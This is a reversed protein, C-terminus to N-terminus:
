QDGRTSAPLYPKLKALIRERETEDKIRAAMAAQEKAFGRGSVGDLFSVLLEDSGTEQYLAEVIPATNKFSADPPTNHALAKGTLRDVDQPAQMALWARMEDVAARNVTGSAQKLRYLGSGAAYEAFIRREAVTAAIADLFDDVKAFGGENVMKRAISPYPGNHSSVLDTQDEAMGLRVLKVFGAEAGPKLEHFRYSYQLLAKQQERALSKFRGIAQEPNSKLLGAIAVSMLNAMMQNGCTENARIGDSQNDLKGAAIMEDLWATAGASDNEMWKSFANVFRPAMNLEECQALLGEFHRLTLQSDKGIAADLLESQFNSTFGSYPLDWTAVDKMMALIESASMAELRRQVELETRRDKREGSELLVAMQALRKWEGRDNAPKTATQSPQANASVRTAPLRKRLAANQDLLKAENSVLGALWICGAILAALPPFISNPKM